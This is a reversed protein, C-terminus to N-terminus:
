TAFTDVLGAVIVRSSPGDSNVGSVRRQRRHMTTCEYTEIVCRRVSHCLRQVEGGGANRCRRRDSAALQDGRPPADTDRNTVALPMTMVSTAHAPITAWSRLM